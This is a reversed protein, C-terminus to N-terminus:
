RETLWRRNVTLDTLYSSQIALILRLLPVVCPLWENRGFVILLFLLFLCIYLSFFSGCIFFGWDSSICDYFFFGLRLINAVFQLHWKRCDLSKALKFWRNKWRQSQFPIKMKWDNKKRRKWANSWKSSCKPM